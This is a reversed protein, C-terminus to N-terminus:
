EEKADEKRQDRMGVKLVASSDELVGADSLQKFFISLMRQENMKKNKKGDYCFFASLLFHYKQDYLVEIDPPTDAWRSADTETWQVKKCETATEHVTDLVKVKHTKDGHIFEELKAVNIKRDIKARLSIFGISQASLLQMVKYLTSCVLVLWAMNLIWWLGPVRIVTNVFYDDIWNPVVINLTGGSLRDIIDFAFSGALIVQMVELSASARENAASADVLFKTNTEVNKFVDELQKTNIVETMQQLTMLQHHAGHVLKNLDECRLTTDALMQAPNLVALLRKSNQTAASATPLTMQQLSERLYELVEKLLIVDRSANNLHGRIRSIHNPDKAYNMILKRIQDLLDDLVFTRIFFNRIFIERCLLSLYVFLMKENQLCHPGCLLVGDQGMIIVDEASLDHCARLDGLVQKLENECDGKDMYDEGSLQPTIKEAVICNFKNRMATDGMFLMDLLGRQYQSLLDNMISSSDQHLDVLLRSLLDLSIDNRKREMIAEVFIGYLITGDVNLHMGFNEVQVVGDEEPYNIEAEFNIFRVFDFDLINVSTLGPPVNFKTDTPSEDIMATFLGGQCRDLAGLRENLAVIQNSGFPIWEGVMAHVESLIIAESLEDKINSVGKASEHARHRNSTFAQMFRNNMRLCEPLYPSSVYSVDETDTVESVKSKRGAATVLLFSNTHAEFVVQLLEGTDKDHLFGEVGEKLQRPLLKIFELGKESLQFATVPQFDETSLKLGSVMGAERLDDVVSKGEQSVNLWLRRSTGENSILVSIPAYDLDIVGSVIGEYMLVSMPIQRLWSEKESANLACRAYKSILYAIRCHETQWTERPSEGDKLFRKPITWSIHDGGVGSM